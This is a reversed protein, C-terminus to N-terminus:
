GAYTVNVDIVPKDLWSKPKIAQISIQKRLSCHTLGISKVRSTTRCVHIKITKPLTLRSDVWVWMNHNMVTPNILPHCQLPIYRTENSIMETNTDPEVSYSESGLAVQITQHRHRHRHRVRRLLSGTEHKPSTSIKCRAYEIDKCRYCKFYNGVSNPAKRTENASSPQTRESGTSM